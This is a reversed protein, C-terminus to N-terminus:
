DNRGLLLRFFETSGSSNTAYYLWGDQSVVCSSEDDHMAPLNPLATWTDSPIDYRYMQTFDENGVYLGGSRDHCTNDHIPGYGHHSSSTLFEVSSISFRMLFESEHGAFVIVNTNPDYGLKVHDLEVWARHRYRVSNGDAPNLRVLDVDTIYWVFGEGDMIAQSSRESGDRVDTWPTSWSGDSLKFRHMEDERPIWIGTGNVAGNVWRDNMGFPPEEDLVEWSDTVIDYRVNQTFDHIYRDGSFHFSQLGALPGTNAPAALPEWTDGWTGNLGGALNGQDDCALAPLLTATLLLSVLWHRRHLHIM